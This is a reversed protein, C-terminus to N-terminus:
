AQETAEARRYLLFTLISGAVAAAMAPILLLDIAGYPEGAFFDPWTCYCSAGFFKLAAVEWPNGLIIWVISAAATTLVAILWIRNHVVLMATLSNILWTAAIALLIVGPTHLYFSVALCLPWGVGLAAAPWWASHIVRKLVLGTIVGATLWGLMLSVAGSDSATWLSGILMGALWAAFWGSSVIVGALLAARQQHGVTAPVIPRNTELPTAHDIPAPSAEKHTLGYM